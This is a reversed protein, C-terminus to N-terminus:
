GRKMERVGYLPAVLLLFSALDDSERIWLRRGLRGVSLNAVEGLFKKEKQEDVDNNSSLELRNYM